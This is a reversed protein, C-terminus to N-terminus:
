SRQGPSAIVIPAQVPVALGTASLMDRLMGFVRSWQDAEDRSLAVTLTTNGCRITALGTEGEPVATKGIDLTAMFSTDLHPNGLDVLPRAGPATM